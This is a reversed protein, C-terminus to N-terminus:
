GGEGGKGQSRPERTTSLAHWYLEGRDICRLLRVGDRRIGEHWKCAAADEAAAPRVAPHRHHVDAACRRLPIVVALLIVVVMVVVGAFRGTEERSVSLMRPALAARPPTAGAAAGANVAAV